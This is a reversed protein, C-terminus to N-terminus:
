QCPAEIEQRDLFIGIAQGSTGLFHQRLEHAKAVRWLSKGPPMAGFMHDEFIREPQQCGGDAQRDIREFRGNFRGVAFLRGFQVLRYDRRPGDARALASWVNVACIRALWAALRPVYPTGRM